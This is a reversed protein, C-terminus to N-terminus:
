FDLPECVLSQEPIGTPKPYGSFVIEAILLPCMSLIGRAVTRYDSARCRAQSLKFIAERTPFGAVAEVQYMTKAKPM